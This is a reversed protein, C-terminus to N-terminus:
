PSKFLMIERCLKQMVRSYSFSQFVPNLDHMAHGVKNFAQDKPVLLNGKDDRAEEEFFPKIQGASDLFYNARNQKKTEFDEIEEADLDFDDVIGAM